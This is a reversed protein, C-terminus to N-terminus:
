AWCKRHSQLRFPWLRAAHQLRGRFSDAHPGAVGHWVSIFVRVHLRERECCSPKGKGKWMANLDVMNALKGKNKGKSKGKGKMCYLEVNDWEAAYKFKGKGKAKVSPNM